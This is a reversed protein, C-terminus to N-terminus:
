KGCGSPGILSTVSREKFKMTVNKVAEIDDYFVSVNEAIMKYKKENALHEDQINEVNDQKNDM